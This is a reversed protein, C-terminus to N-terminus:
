PQLHSLEPSKLILWRIDDSTEIERDAPVAFTFVSRNKPMIRRAGRFNESKLFVHDPVEVVGKQGNSNVAHIITEEGTIIGVHGVGDNPDDLFYNIRASKFVLDGITLNLSNIVDGLERQQISRRPLWIGRQAYLWKIFISCNLISPAESFMANRRYESTGICKRALSMLDINVIKFGKSELILIAEKQSIPLGLNEFDVACYKGVARYIKM